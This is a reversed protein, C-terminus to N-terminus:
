YTLRFRPTRTDPFQEYIWQLETNAQIMEAEGSDSGAMLMRDGTGAQYNAKSYSQRETERAQKIRILADANKTLSAAYLEALTKCAAPPHSKSQFTMVLRDADAINKELADAVSDSDVFRRPDTTAQRLLDKGWNNEQRRQADFASLWKLYADVPDSQTQPRYVGAADAPGAAFTFSAARSTGSSYSVMSAGAVSARPQNQTTSGDTLVSKPACGYGGVFCLVACLVTSILVGRM